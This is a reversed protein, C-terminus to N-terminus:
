WGERWPAVAVACAGTARSAARRTKPSSAHWVWTIWECVGSSASPSRTPRQFSNWTSDGRHRHLKSLMVHLHFSQKLLDLIPMHQNFQGIGEIVAADFDNDEGGIFRNRDTPTGVRVNGASNLDM